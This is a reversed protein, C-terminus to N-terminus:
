IRIEIITFYYIINCNHISKTLFKYYYYYYYSTRYFSNCKNSFKRNEGYYLKNYTYGIQPYDSFIYYIM